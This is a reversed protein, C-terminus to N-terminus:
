PGTQSARKKPSESRIRAAIHHAKKRNQRWQWLLSLAGALPAVLFFWFARSAGSSLTGDAILRVGSGSAVGMAIAAWYPGKTRELTELDNLEGETIHFVPITRVQIDGRFSKFEESNENQEGM